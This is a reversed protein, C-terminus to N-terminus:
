FLQIQEIIKKTKEEKHTRTPIIGGPYQSKVYDLMLKMGEINHDSSNLRYDTYSNPSGYRNKGKRRTKSVVVGFPKEVMRPVERGINSFGVDKFCNSVNLVRGELLALCLAAKATM